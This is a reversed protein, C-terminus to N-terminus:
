LLTFNAPVEILINKANLYNAPVNADNSGLIKFEAYNSIWHKRSFFEAVTCTDDMYNEKELDYKSILGYGHPHKTWLRITADMDVHNFIYEYLTM